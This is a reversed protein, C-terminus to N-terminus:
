FAEAQPIDAADNDDEAEETIRMSDLMVIPLNDLFSFEDCGRMMRKSMCKAFAAVEIRKGYSQAMEVAALFDRDGSVVVAVDFSDSMTQRILECALAVDVEKQVKEEYDGSDRTIVRFGQYALISHLYKDEKEGDFVYAGTVRRGGALYEVMKAFDLRDTGATERCGNIVNRVDVFFMVRDSDNRTIISM